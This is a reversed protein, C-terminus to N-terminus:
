FQGRGFEENRSKRQESRGKWFQIKESKTILVTKEDNGGQVFNDNKLDKRELITGKETQEKLSSDKKMNEM